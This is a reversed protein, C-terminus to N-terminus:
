SEAPVTPATSMPMSMSSMSPMPTGAPAHYHEDAGTFAKVPAQVRVQASGFADGTLLLTLTVEDGPQLPRDLDMLMIHDGGPALTVSGHAPITIGGVKPQMVPGDPGPVTEHVEVTGASAARAGVLRAPQDADNVLQAFAGTATPREPTTAAVWPQVVRVAPAHSDVASASGTVQTTGTPGPSGGVSGTVTSTGTTGCGTVSAGLVGILLALFTGVVRRPAPGRRWARSM